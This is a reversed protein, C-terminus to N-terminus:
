WNYKINLLKEDKVTENYKKYDNGFDFFFRGYDIKDNPIPKEVEITDLYLRMNNKSGNDIFWYMGDFVFKGYEKPVCKPYKLVIKHKNQLYWNWVFEFTDVDYSYIDVKWKTKYFTFDYSVEFPLKDKDNMYNQIVFEMNSIDRGKYYETNLIKEKDKLRLYFRKRKFKWKYDYNM